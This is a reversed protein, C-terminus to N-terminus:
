FFLCCGSPIFNFILDHCGYCMTPGSYNSAHCSICIEKMVYKKNLTKNEKLSQIAGMKQPFIAHCKKCNDSINEHLKHSFVIKGMFGGKINIKEPPESAIAVYSIILIIFFILKNISMSMKKRGKLLLCYQIIICLELYFCFCSLFVRFIIEGNIKVM